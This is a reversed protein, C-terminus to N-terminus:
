DDSFGPLNSRHIVEFLIYVISFAIAVGGRSSSGTWLVWVPNTLSAMSAWDVTYAWESVTIVAAVLLATRVPIAQNELKTREAAKRTLNSAGKTKRNLDYLNEIKNSIRNIFDDVDDSIQGMWRELNGKVQKRLLTNEDNLEKNERELKKVEGELRDIKEKQKRGM